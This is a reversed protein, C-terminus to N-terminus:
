LFDATIKEIDYPTIGETLSFINEAEAPDALLTGRAEGHLTFLDYLTPKELDTLAQAIAITGGKTNEVHGYMYNKGGMFMDSYIATLEQLDFILPMMARADQNLHFKHTVTRPEYIEGSATETRMMAGAFCVPIESFTQGTFSYVNMLVYRMDANLAAQINIDIFESAGNRGADIIDGSHSAQLGANCLRTWSIHESKTWDENYYVASLDIDVRGTRDNQEWWLFLRIVVGPDLPVRSGRPLVKLSKGVARMAFPIPFGRLVPDVYVLGLSDRKNFQTRLAIQCTSVAKKCTAVSLPKLENEVVQIKAINGKPLFARIKSDPRGRFHAVLQLLVQVSVHEAVDAFNDLIKTQGKPFTRLMWDLRRAYEGPRTRALQILNDLDKTQIAQEFGGAFTKVDFNNRIAEFAKYTKPYQKAYDGPHLIEGARVWRERYRLMDEVIDGKAELLTLFFKREFRKFAKFKTPDKLSVDGGSLGVMLRLVDTATKFYKKIVIDSLVNNTKCTAMLFAINEKNELTDPLYGLIEEKYQRIFWDLDEKDVKSLAVKSSLLDSFIQKFEEVTGLNIVKPKPFNQLLARVEKTYQPLKGTLYHILANFYLEAPHAEMVQTPFNPYMITYDKNRGVLEKLVALVTKQIKAMDVLSYTKLVNIADISFTYGLKHMDVLFSALVETSNFGNKAELIIKEKRRIFLNNRL